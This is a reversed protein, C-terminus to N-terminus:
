FDVVLEIITEPHGARIGHRFKVINIQIKNIIWTYEIVKQTDGVLNDSNGLTLLVAAEFKLLEEYLFTVLPAKKAMVRNFVLQLWEVIKQTKVENEAVMWETLSDQVLQIPFITLLNIRFLASATAPNVEM